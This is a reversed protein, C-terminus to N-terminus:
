EVESMDAPSGSPRAMTSSSPADSSHPLRATGPLPNADSQEHIQSSRRGSASRTCRGEPSRAQREGAGQGAPAELKVGEEVTAPRAARGAAPAAGPEEGEPVPAPGREMYAWVIEGCDPCTPLPGATASAPVPLGRLRLHGAVKQGAHFCPLGSGASPRRPARARADPERTRRARRPRRRRWGAQRASTAPQRWRTSERESAQRPSRRRRGRPTDNTADFGVAGTGRVPARPRGFM